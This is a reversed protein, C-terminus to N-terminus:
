KHETRKGSKSLLVLGSFTFHSLRGVLFCTVLLHSPALTTKVYAVLILNGERKRSPLRSIM